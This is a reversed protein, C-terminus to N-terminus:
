IILTTKLLKKQNIGDDVGGLLMAVSFESNWGGLLTAENARGGVEVRLCKCSYTLQM